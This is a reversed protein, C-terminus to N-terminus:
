LNTTGPSQPENPMKTKVVEVNSKMVKGNSLYAELWMSYSSILIHFNYMSNKERFERSCGENFFFHYILCM